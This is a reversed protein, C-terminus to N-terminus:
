IPKIVLHRNRGEGESFTEVSKEERLAIHIIRREAASMPRLDIEKKLNVAKNAMRFAFDELKEKQRGKYGHVDVTIPYKYGVKRSVILSVLQQLSSITNGHRGILVSLDEGDLDLILKREDGEYEDIKVEKYEFFKIINKIENISLDAINDLEEETIETKFEM